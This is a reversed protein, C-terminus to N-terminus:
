SDDGGITQVNSAYRNCEEKGHVRATLIHVMFGCNRTPVYNSHTSFGTKRGGVGWCLKRQGLGLIPPKGISGSEM